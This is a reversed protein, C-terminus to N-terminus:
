RMRVLSELAVGAERRAPEIAELFRGADGPYGATPRLGPRRALWFRNFLIMHLERTYKAAMSALSVPLFAADARTVFRVTLRRDADRVIYGFEDPRIPEPEVRAPYFLGRLLDLYNKRGGQRDVVLDVRDEGPALVEFVHRMLPAAAHFNFVNKSVHRELGRNVEGAPFALVRFDAFSVGSEHLRAALEARSRELIAPDLAYPM